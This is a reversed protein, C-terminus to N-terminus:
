HAADFTTHAIDDPLYKFRLPRPEDNSRERKELRIAFRSLEGEGNCLGAGLVIAERDENGSPRQEQDVESLLIPVYADGLPRSSSSSFPVYWLCTKKKKCRMMGVM